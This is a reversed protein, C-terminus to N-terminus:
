KRKRQEPRSGSAGGTPRTARRQEGALWARGEVAGSEADGGQGEGDDVVSVTLAPGSASEQCALAEDFRFVRFPTSVRFVSPASGRSAPLGVLVAIVPPLATARHLGRPIPRSTHQYLFLPDQFPTKEVSM